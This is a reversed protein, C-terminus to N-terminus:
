MKKASNRLIESHAHNVETGLNSSPSPVHPPHLAEGGASDRAQRGRRRARQLRGRVRQPRVVRQLHLCGGRLLAVEGHLEEIKDKPSLPQAGQLHDGSGLADQLAQAVEEAQMDYQHCLPLQDEDDDDDDDDDDVRVLKFPSDSSPYSAAEGDKLGM